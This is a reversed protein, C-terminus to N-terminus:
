DPLILYDFIIQSDMSGRQSPWIYPVVHEDCWQQAEDETDFGVIIHTVDRRCNRAEILVCFSM